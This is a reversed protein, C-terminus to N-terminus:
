INSRSKGQGHCWFRRTGGNMFTMIEADELFWLGTGECAEREHRSQVEHFNLVEFWRNLALDKEEEDKELAISNVKDQV